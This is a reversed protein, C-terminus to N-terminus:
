KEGPFGEGKSISPYLFHVCFNITLGGQTMCMLHSKAHASRSANHRRSYHAIRRRAFNDM